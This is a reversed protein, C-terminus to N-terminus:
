GSAARAACCLLLSSSSSSSPHLPTHMRASAHEAKRFDDRSGVAGGGVGGAGHQVWSHIFRYTRWAGLQWRACSGAEGWGGVCVCTRGLCVFVRAEGKEKGNGRERELELESGPDAARFGPGRTAMVRLLLRVKSTRSCLRFGVSSPLPAPPPGTQGARFTKCLLAAEGGRGRGAQRVWM